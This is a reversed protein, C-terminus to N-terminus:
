ELSGIGIQGIEETSADSGAPDHIWSANGRPCPRRAFEVIVDATVHPGLQPLCLGVGTGEPFRMM